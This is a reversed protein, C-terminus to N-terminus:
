HNTFTFPIKAIYNVFESCFKVMTEGAPFSLEPQTRDM